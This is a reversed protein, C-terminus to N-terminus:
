VLISQLAADVCHQFECLSLHYCIKSDDKTTITPM